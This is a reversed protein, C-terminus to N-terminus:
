HGRGKKGLVTLGNRGPPRTIAEGVGNVATAQRPGKAPGHQAARSSILAAFAAILLRKTM